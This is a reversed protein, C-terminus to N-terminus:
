VDIMILRGVKHFNFCFCKKKKLTFTILGLAFARPSIFFILLFKEIILNIKTISHRADRGSRSMPRTGVEQTGVLFNKSTQNM